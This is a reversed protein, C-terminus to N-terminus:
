TELPPPEDGRGPFQLVNKGSTGALVGQVFAGLQEADFGEVEVPRFEVPEDARGGKIFKM